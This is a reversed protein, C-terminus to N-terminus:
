NNITQILEVELVWYEGREVGRRTTLSGRAEVREKELAELEKGDQIDIRTVAQGGVELPEELDLAWGTTEGGIAAIKVLKGKVTVLDPNARDHSCAPAALLVLLVSALWPAARGALNSGKMIEEKTEDKVL